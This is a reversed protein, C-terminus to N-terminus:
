YSRQYSAAAASKDGQGDQKIADAAYKGAAGELAQAASSM